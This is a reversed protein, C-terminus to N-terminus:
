SPFRLITLVRDDRRKITQARVDIRNADPGRVWRSALEKQDRSKDRPNGSYLLDMAPSDHHVQTAPFQRGSLASPPEALLLSNVGVAFQALKARDAPEGPLWTSSGFQSLDVEARRSMGRGAGVGPGLFALRRDDISRALALDSTGGGSEAGLAVKTEGGVM